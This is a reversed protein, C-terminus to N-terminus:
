AAAIPRTMTLSTPRDFGPHACEGTISFGLATFTAHNEVLEVRTQLELRKKGRKRALDEAIGIIRRLHGQGRYAPLVALKGLYIAEPDERLYGCAIPTGCTLALVLIEEESKLRLDDPSMRSLSSPPDIRGEMYAFSTTLLTRLAEWNRFDKPAVVFDVTEALHTLRQGCPSM